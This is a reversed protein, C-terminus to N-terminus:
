LIFVGNNYLLKHTKINYRYVSGLTYKERAYHRVDTVRAYLLLYKQLKLVLIFTAFFISYRRLPSINQFDIFALPM